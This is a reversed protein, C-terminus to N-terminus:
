PCAGDIANTESFLWIQTGDTLRHAGALEVVPNGRVSQLAFTGPLPDVDVGNGQVGSATNFAEEINLAKGHTASNRTSTTFVKTDDLRVETWDYEWRNAGISTAGTIKAIIRTQEAYRPWSDGPRVGAPKSAGRGTLAADRGRTGSMAEPAVGEDGGGAVGALEGPTSGARADAMAASSGPQSFRRLGAAVSRRARSEQREYFTSPAEHAGVVLVTRNADLDWEVSTVAGSIEGPAHDKIGIVPIVATQSTSAGARQLALNLAVAKLDASNSWVLAGGPNQYMVKRLFPAEIKVSQPDAIAADLNAGTQETLTIAAGTGTVKWAAVFYDDKHTGTNVEHAFTVALDDTALAEADAYTGITTAAMRVYTFDGPLVFVGEGSVAQVGDIRIPADTDLTPLNRFQSQGEDRCARMKVFAAAGALLDTGSGAAEAPTIFRSRGAVDAGTLRVASFLRAFARVSAPGPGKQFESLSGPPVEGPYTATWQTGNLWAGTRDDWAVWELAPELTADFSRSTVVTARTTGSTVVITSGRLSLGTETAFSDADAIIAPPITLTEGARHLKLVTIKSGDNAFVATHGTAALLAELEDIARANGWDLPGPAVLTTLGDIATNLSAPAADHAVGLADLCADVAQQYNLYDAHATDVRGDRGLPNKTGVALLGGRAERLRRPLTQMVVLMETYSVGGGVPIEEGWSMAGIRVMFYGGLTITEPTIGDDHGFTISVAKTRDWDIPIAGKKIRVRLEDGFLGITRRISGEPMCAITNTSPTDDAKTGSLLCTMQRTAM